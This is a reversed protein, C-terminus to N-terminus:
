PQPPYRLLGFVVAEAWENAGGRSRLWDHLSERTLVAIDHSGWKDGFKARVFYGTVHPTENPESPEEGSERWCMAVRNADVILDNM